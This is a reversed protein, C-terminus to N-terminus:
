LKKRLYWLPSACLYIIYRCNAKWILIVNAAALAFICYDLLLWNLSQSLIFFLILDLMTTRYSKVATIPNCWCAFMTAYFFDLDTSAKSSCFRPLIGNSALNQENAFYKVPSHLVMQGHALISHLAHKFIWLPWATGNNTVLHIVFFDMCCIQRIPIFILKLM